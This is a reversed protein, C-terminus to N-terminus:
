RDRRPNRDRADRHVDDLGFMRDLENAVVGLVVLILLFAGVGCILILADNM